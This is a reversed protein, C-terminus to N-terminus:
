GSRSKGRGYWKRQRADEFVVTIGNGKFALRDRLEKVRLLAAHIAMTEISIFRQAAGDWVALGTYTGTDIGIYTM